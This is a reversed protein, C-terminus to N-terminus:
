EHHFEDVARHQDKPSLVTKHAVVLVGVSQIRISGDIVNERHREIIATVLYFTLTQARQMVPQM